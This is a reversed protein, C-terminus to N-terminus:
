ELRKKLAQLLEKDQCNKNIKYFINIIPVIQLGLCGEVGAWWFISSFYVMWILSPLWAFYILKLKVVYINIWMFASRRMRKM